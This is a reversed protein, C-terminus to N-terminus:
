VAEVKMNIRVKTEVQMEAGALANTEVQPHRLRPLCPFVFGIHYTM